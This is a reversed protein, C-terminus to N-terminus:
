EGKKERVERDHEIIKASKYRKLYEELIANMAKTRDEFIKDEQIIRDIEELLYTSVSVTTIRHM